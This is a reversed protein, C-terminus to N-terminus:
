RMAIVHRKKKALFPVIVNSVALQNCPEVAHVDEVVMLGENLSGLTSSSMFFEAKEEKANVPIRNTM